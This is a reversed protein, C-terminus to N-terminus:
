HILEDVVHMTMKEHRHLDENVTAQLESMKEVTFQSRLFNELGLEITDGAKCYHEGDEAYLVLDGTNLTGWKLAEFVLSIPDHPLSAIPIKKVNKDNVSYWVASKEIGVAYDTNVLTSLATGDSFEHIKHLGTGEPDEYESDKTRALLMAGYGNIAKKIEDHGSNHGLDKGIVIAFALDCTVGLHGIPIPIHNDKADILFEPTRVFWFNREKGKFLGIVHKCQKIVDSDELQLDSM